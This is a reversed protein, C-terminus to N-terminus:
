AFAFTLPYHKKIDKYAGKLKNYDTYAQLRVGMNFCKKSMPKSKLIEQLECVNICIGYPQFSRMWSTNLKKPEDLMMIYDCIVDMMNEKSLPVDGTSPAGLIFEFIAEAEDDQTSTQLAMKKENEKDSEEVALCQKRKKIRPDTDLVQVDSPSGDNENTDEIVLPCGKRENLDSTLLIATLKTRFQAMNDTLRLEERGYSTGCSDLLQIECKKANVVTLYWHTEPINIPLFV